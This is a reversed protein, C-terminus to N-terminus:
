GGAEEAEAVEAGGFGGDVGAEEGDGVGGEGALVEFDEGGLGVPGAGGFVVLGGEVDGIAEFGGAEGGLDDGEADEHVLGDPDEDFGGVGRALFEHGAGGGLM